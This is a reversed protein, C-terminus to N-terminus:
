LLSKYLATIDEVSADKPNGPRCADDFASQALFAIDELSRVDAVAAVAGAGYYSTESLVFRNM